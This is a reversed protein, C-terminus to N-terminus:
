GYDMLMGNGIMNTPANLDKLLWSMHLCFHNPVDSSLDLEDNNFWQSLTHANKEGVVNQDFYSAIKDDLTAGSDTKALMM